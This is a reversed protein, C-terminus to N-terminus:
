KKWPAKGSKWIKNLTIKDRLTDMPLWFKEHKYAKIKKRMAMKTLAVNELSDQDKKLYKFIDKNFIFFGGNIWVDKNDVKEQFKSVLTNKIKLVGFRGPPKVATITILKEKKKHFNYM